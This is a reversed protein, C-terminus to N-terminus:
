FKYAFGATFMSADKGASVTGIKSMTMSSNAENSVAAYGGYLTINKTLETQAIVGWGTGSNNTSQTDDASWGYMVNLKTADDVPFTVHAINSTSKVGDATTSNDGRAHLYGITQGSSLKYSVAAITADKEAVTTAGDQYVQSVGFRVQDGRYVLSVGKQTDQANTTASTGNFTGGVQVEWGNINPSIYKGVNKMNYGLEIGSGNVPTFNFNGTQWILIDLDQGATTDTRGGKFTGIPTVLSLSAENNFYEGTNSTSGVDGETVNLEGELQGVIKYGTGFEPSTITAGVRGSSHNGNTFKTVSTTGNDVVAVGTDIVGYFTVKPSSDEAKAQAGILFLFACLIHFTKKM